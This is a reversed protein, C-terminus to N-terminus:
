HGGGPAWAESRDASGGLAEVRFSRRLASARHARPAGMSSLKPLRGAGSRVKLESKATECRQTVNVHRQSDIYPPRETCLSTREEETETDEQRDTHRCSEGRHAQVPVPVSVHLHLHIHIYTHVYAQIYHIHTHGRKIESQLYM